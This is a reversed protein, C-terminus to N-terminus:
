RGPVSISTRMWDGGMWNMWPELFIRTPPMRFANGLSGCSFVVGMM